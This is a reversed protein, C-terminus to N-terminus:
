DEYPIRSLCVLVQYSLLLLSSVVHLVGSFPILNSPYLAAPLFDVCLFCSGGHDVEM